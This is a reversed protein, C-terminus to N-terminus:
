EPPLSQLFQDVSEFRVPSRGAGQRGDRFFPAVVDLDARVEPNLALNAITRELRDQMLKTRGERPVVMAAWVLRAAMNREMFFASTSYRLALEELEEGNKVFPGHCAWAYAIPGFVAHTYLDFQNPDSSPESNRALEIALVLREESPDINLRLLELDVLAARLPPHTFGALEERREKPIKLIDAVSARSSVSLGSNSLLEVNKKQQASRQVVVFWAFTASAVVVGVVVAKLMTARNSAM